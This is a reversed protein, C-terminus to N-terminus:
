FFRGEWEPLAILCSVRKGFLRYRYRAVLRYLLDRIPRPIILFFSFLRWGGSLHRLILLAADSRTYVRGKSILVVSDLALNSRHYNLLISKGAESQLSTFCFHGVPDRQLVFQVARSCLYCFGDYLIIHDSPASLLQLIARFLQL